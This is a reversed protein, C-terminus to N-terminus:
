MKIESSQVTPVRSISNGQAKTTETPSHSLYHPYLLPHHRELPLLLLFRRRLHLSPRPFCFFIRSFNKKCLIARATASFSFPFFRLIADILTDMLRGRRHLLARRHTHTHRHVRTIIHMDAICMCAHGFAEDRLGQFVRR